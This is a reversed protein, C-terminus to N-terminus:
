KFLKVQELQQWSHRWEGPEGQDTDPPCHGDHFRGVRDGCFGDRDLRNTARRLEVLFDERPEEDTSLSIGGCHGGSIMHSANAWSAWHAADACQVASRRLGLGGMRM